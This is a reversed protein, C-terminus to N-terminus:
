RFGRKILAYFIVILLIPIVVYVFFVILFLFAAVGLAFGLVKFFWASLVHGKRISHGQTYHLEGHDGEALRM